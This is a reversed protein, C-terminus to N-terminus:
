EANKPPETIDGPKATGRRILEIEIAKRVLALSDEGELVSAKIRDVAGAPLTLNM